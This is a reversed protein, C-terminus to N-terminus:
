REAPALALDHRSVTIYAGHLVDFVKGPVATKAAVVLRELTRRDFDGLGNGRLWAAMTELAVDHPLSIFWDRDLRGGPQARLQQGLLEDIERNTDHMGGIIEWLQQRSAEDLRPLLRHRIYNRLYDVDQNTSDERWTLGQDRAYARIYSKPVHLMPREVHRRNGLSTLGKRGSGRVLNIIATELVDDRHHATVIARAGAARRVDHLFGYRATRAAAEGAGAGLRAEDYVFPLGMRRTTEQVLRRDEASDPRMGHDLHAVVLKWPKKDDAHNRQQLAHLMAMSDVGGSVALVYSGPETLAIDM